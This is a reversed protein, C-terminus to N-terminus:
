DAETPSGRIVRIVLDGSQETKVNQQAPGILYDAVFQRARFNGLKADRVARGIIALFDDQSVADRFLQLYDQEVEKKSRGKPNGSQGKQFRGKDDREPM